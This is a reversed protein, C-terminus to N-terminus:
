LSAAAALNDIPESEPAPLKQQLNAQKAETENNQVLKACTLDTCHLDPDM